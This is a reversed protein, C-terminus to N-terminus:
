MINRIKKNRKLVGFLLLCGVHYSSRIFCGELTDPIYSIGGTWGTSPSSKESSQRWQRESEQYFWLVKAVCVEHHVWYMINLQGPM